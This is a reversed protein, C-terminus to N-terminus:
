EGQTRRFWYYGLAGAVVVIIVAGMVIPTADTEEVYLTLTRTLTHDGYDDAYRVTFTYSHEGPEDATLGFVAPADNGTKISGIFAERTGPFPLDVTARTSIAKGTGTNELRIVLDFPDGERVQEPTTSVSMIDLDADGRLDLTVTGVQRARSGDARVYSIEVPIEHLGLAAHEDSHLTLTLTQADGPAFETAYWSGNKVVSVQPDTGTVTLSVQEATSEGLNTVTIAVESTEGPHAYVVPGQSVALDPEQMAAIPLNVNVPIPYLLNQAGTISSRLVPFYIGERSPAEILFSLRVSQGPGLDGTFQSNGGLVRIEGKGDLYVSTVTPNLDTTTTVTKGAAPYSERTTRTAGTATNTITIHIMARDGPMMVAPVVECASVIVSPEDAAVCPVASALCVLLLLLAPVIRHM